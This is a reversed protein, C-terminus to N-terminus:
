NQVDVVVLDTGLAIAEASIINVVRSGVAAGINIDTATVTITDGTTPLTALFVAGDGTATGAEIFLRVVSGRTGLADVSAVVLSTVGAVYATAVTSSGLVPNIAIFGATFEGSIADLLAGDKGSNGVAAFSNYAIVESGIFTNLIANTRAIIEDQKRLVGQLTGKEAVTDTFRFGDRRTPGRGNNSAM